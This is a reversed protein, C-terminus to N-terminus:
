GGSVIKYVNLEAGEELLASATESSELIERQYEVISNEACKQEVLFDAVTKAATEKKQGQYIITM